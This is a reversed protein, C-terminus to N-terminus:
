RSGVIEQLDPPLHPPPAEELVAQLAALLRPLLRAEIAARLAVLLLPAELAVRLAALLRPPFRSQRALRFRYNVLEWGGSPVVSGPGLRPVM